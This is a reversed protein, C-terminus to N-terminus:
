SLFKIRLTLSPKTTLDRLRTLFKENITQLHLISKRRRKRRKEKQMARRRPKMKAIVIIAKITKFSQLFLIRLKILKRIM